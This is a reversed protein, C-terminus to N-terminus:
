LTLELFFHGSTNRWIVCPRFSSLIPLWWSKLQFRGHHGRKETTTVSAFNYRMFLQAICLWHSFPNAHEKHHFLIPLVILHRLSKLRLPSAVEENPLLLYLANRYKQTRWTMISKNSHMLPPKELPRTGTPFSSRVRWWRSRITLIIFWPFLHTGASPTHIENTSLFIVQQLSNESSQPQNMRPTTSWLPTKWSWSSLRCVTAYKPLFGDDFFRM